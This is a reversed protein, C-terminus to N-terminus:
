IHGLIDLYTWIHGLIDLYTWIHGLIDSYTGTHGLIHLYTRTHGLIALYTWTHGLIDLYTWTHGLIDLYTRPNTFINARPTGKKPSARSCIKNSNTAIHVVSSFQSYPKYFHPAHRGRRPPPQSASKTTIQQYKFLQVSLTQLFAPAHRERRPPPESASKTTIQQCIFLQVFVRERPPGLAIHRTVRHQESTLYTAITNSNAVIQVVSSFQSFQSYPKYFHQRTANGEQPLSPLLYQQYKSFYLCSFL